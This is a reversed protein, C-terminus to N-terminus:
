LYKLTGQKKVIELAEDYSEEHIIYHKGYAWGPKRYGEIHYGEYKIKGNAFCVIAVGQGLQVRDKDEFYLSINLSNSVFPYVDLDPRVEGNNNIEVTLNEAVFVILNRAYELSIKDNSNKELSYKARFNAIGNKYEYNKPVGCNIGYSRLVLETEPQIRKSYLNILKYPPYMQYPDKVDKKTSCSSGVLFCFLLFSIFKM